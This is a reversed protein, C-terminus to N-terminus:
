KAPNILLGHSFVNDPDYKAKIDILRSLKEAPFAHKTRERKEEGDLFNLYVTGTTSGQIESKIQAYVTKLVAEFHPVPVAGVMHLMFPVHRNSYANSNPDVKAIAGGAHRIEAFAVAPPAGAPVVHRVLSDIVVDSIEQLRESTSFGPMPDVPDSSIVGSNTFPMEEWANVLPQKWDLWQQILAKGKELDGTYCGRVMVFSQGRLFEPVEPIPPFNMILVSSTLEEPADKVWERYRTFVERTMTAPYMLNGAFVTAVPFLEIEVETVVGFTGAGGGRVAWFLDTNETDSARIVDGNATVLEVSRVSDVALGYKRGLWGMGGGLTYGTAGVYPSSGLLPALGHEQAANLVKHWKIGGGFRATRQEPNISVHDLSSTIILLADNAPLAVGHGTAQIAVALNNERAFRVAEAVDAADAAVVIVNPHQQVMLNWALRAQEYGSDQPTIVSGRIRAQLTATSIHALEERSRVIEM